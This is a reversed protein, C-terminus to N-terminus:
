DHIGYKGNKVIIKLVEHYSYYVPCVFANASQKIIGKIYIHDILSNGETTPQSIIQEFDQLQLYDCIKQPKTRDLLNENFDGLIIVNDYKAIHVLIENLQEIFLNALMKPPKYVGIICVNHHVIIAHDLHSGALAEVTAYQLHNKKYVAIGGNHKSTHEINDQASKIFPKDFHQLCLIEPTDNRFLWTEVLCILDSTILNSNVCVDDIHALLGQTNHFTIVIDDSESTPLQDIHLPVM